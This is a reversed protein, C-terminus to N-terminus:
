TPIYINMNYQNYTQNEDFASVTVDNQKSIQIGDIHWKM